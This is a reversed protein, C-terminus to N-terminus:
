SFFRHGHCALREFFSRDLIKSLSVLEVFRKKPMEAGGFSSLLPTVMQTDIWSLGLSKLRSVLAFLAFKSAGSELFFMSEGSVYRGAIVGYLGGVLNGESYVEVSYARKQDFLDCYARVIDQTIWTGDQGKRPTQACNNIVEEFSQCFSVTFDRKKFEKLASRSVHFSSFELVGRPDPSVWPIFPEGDLPWPFVCADYAKVLDEVSVSPTVAIIDEPNM